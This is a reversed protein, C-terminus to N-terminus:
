QKYGQAPQVPFGNSRCKCFRMASIGVAGIIVLCGGFVALWVVQPIAEYEAYPFHPCNVISPFGVEELFPLWLEKDHSQEIFDMLKDKAVKEAEPSEAYRMDVLFGRLQIFEVMNQSITSNPQKARELIKATLADTRKIRESSVWTRTAMSSIFRRYAREFPERKRGLEEPTPAVM